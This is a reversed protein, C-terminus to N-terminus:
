VLGGDLDAAQATGAPPHDLDEAPQWHDCAHGTKPSQWHRVPRLDGIRQIYLACRAARDSGYGLCVKTAKAVHNM